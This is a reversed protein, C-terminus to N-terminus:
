DLSFPQISVVIHKAKHQDREAIMRQELVMLAYYIISQQGIM